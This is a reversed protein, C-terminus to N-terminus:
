ALVQQEEPTRDELLELSSLPGGSQDLYVLRLYRPQLYFARTNKKMYAFLEMSTFTPLLTNQLTKHMKLLLSKYLTQCCFFIKSTLYVRLNECHNNYVIWFLM